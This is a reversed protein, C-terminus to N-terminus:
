SVGRCANGAGCSRDVWVCCRLCAVIVAEPCAEGSLCGLSSRMGVSKGGHWTILLGSDGPYGDKCGHGEPGAESAERVVLDLRTALCM